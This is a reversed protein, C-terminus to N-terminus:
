MMMDMVLGYYAIQNFEGALLLLSRLGTSLGRPGLSGPLIDAFLKGPDATV